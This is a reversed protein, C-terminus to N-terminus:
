KIPQKNEKNSMPTCDLLCGETKGIIGMVKHNKDEKNGIRDIYFKEGYWKKIIKDTILPIVPFCAKFIFELSHLEIDTLENYNEIKM